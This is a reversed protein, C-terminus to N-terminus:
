KYKPLRDYFTAVTPLIRKKEKKINGWFATLNDVAEAQLEHFNNQALLVVQYKPLIQPIPATKGKPRQEEQSM